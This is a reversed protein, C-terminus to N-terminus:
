DWEAGMEAIRRGTKKKGGVRMRTKSASDKAERM